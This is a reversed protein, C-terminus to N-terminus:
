NICKDENIQYQKGNPMQSASIASLTESVSPPYQSGMTFRSFLHLSPTNNHQILICSNTQNYPIQALRSMSTLMQCRVQRTATSFSSRNIIFFLKLVQITKNHKWRYHYYYYTQTQPKTTMIVAIKLTWWNMQHTCVSRWTTGLGWVFAVFKLRVMPQWWQRILNIDM